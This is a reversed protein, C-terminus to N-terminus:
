CMVALNGRIPQEFAAFNSLDISPHHTSPMEEFIGIAGSVNQIAPTPRALQEALELWRQSHICRRRM